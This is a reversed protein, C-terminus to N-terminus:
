GVKYQTTANLNELGNNVHYTNIVNMLCLTFNGLTYAFMMKKAKNHVPSYVILNQTYTFIKKLINNLTFLHNHSFYAPASGRTPPSKGELVM